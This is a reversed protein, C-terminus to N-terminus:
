NGPSKSLDEARAYSLQALAFLVESDDETLVVQHLRALAQSPDKRWQEEMGFRRLVSLAGLGAHPQALGSSEVQIFAKKFGVAEASIPTQCGALLCAAAAVCAAM